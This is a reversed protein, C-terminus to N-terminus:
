FKGGAPADDAFADPNELFRRSVKEYAPDFRLALDDVVVSGSQRALTMIMQQRPSIGEM